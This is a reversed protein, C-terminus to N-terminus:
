PFPLLFLLFDDIGVSVEDLEDLEDVEPGDLLTGFVTKGDCIADWDM